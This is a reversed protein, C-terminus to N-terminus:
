ETMTNKCPIYSLITMYSTNSVNKSYTHYRNHLEEKMFDKRRVPNKKTHKTKGYNFIEIMQSIVGDLRNFMVNGKNPSIITESKTPM